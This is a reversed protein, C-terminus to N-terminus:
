NVGHLTKIVKSVTHLGIQPFVLLVLFGIIDPGTDEVLLVLVKCYNVFTM